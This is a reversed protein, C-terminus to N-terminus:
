KRFIGAAASIVTKFRSKEPKYFHQYDKESKWDGGWLWGHAAFARYCVDNKDIKHEFALERDCYNLANAPMVKEGVIYPNYLPNIDVARGLAHLSLKDTDAVTRYNFASSNNDSMSREDDGGYHDCLRIKEIEYEQEYLCFFIDLMEEALPRAAILEGEAVRHSFDYHRVRLYSLEELTIHPNERYTVGNIFSIINEPLPCATFGDRYSIILGSM